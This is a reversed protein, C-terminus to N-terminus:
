LGLGRNIADIVSKENKEEVEISHFDLLMDELRHADSDHLILKKSLLPYSKILSNVDATKSVEVCSFDPQDPFVGLNSIISHSARNIHAPFIAADYEKALDYAKDISIDTAPVLWNEQVGIINDKEDMILQDGFIEPRNPVKMIRSQVFESFKEASYLEKFLMVMHVEEQTTLEMGAIVLIDNERGLNMLTKCNKSCNHDTLAIVDLENIISMNIINSPTMDNEACPSLASHIHFDYFLKM